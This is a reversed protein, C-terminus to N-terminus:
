IGGLWACAWALFLCAVSGAVFTDTQGTPERDTGLMWFGSIALLLFFATMAYAITSAIM